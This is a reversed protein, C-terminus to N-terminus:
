LKLLNQDLPPQPTGYTKIVQYAYYFITGQIGLYLIILSFLFQGNHPLQTLLYINLLMAMLSSFLWFILDSKKLYSPLPPRNTYLLAIGCLM